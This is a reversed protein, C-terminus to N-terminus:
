ASESGVVEPPGEIPGVGIPPLPCDLSDAIARLLEAEEVTVKGDAAVCTLAAGIVKKKISPSSESLKNLAQAVVLLSCESKPLLNVEQGTKTLEGMAQDFAATTEGLDTHGIHALSSILGVIEKAVGNLSHYKVSPAKKDLIHRDLHDLLIRQLIFEFLSIRGDAKVLLDVTEHFHEYQEQSLGILTSQVMEIIPLRSERGQQRILPELKITDKETPEGEHQRILQLQKGRIEGEPKLILAFVVARADFVDHIADKLQQPMSDLLDHSYNVHSTTPEGVAGLIIVPELPIPMAEGMPTQGMPTGFRPRPKKKEAAQAAAAQTETYPQTRPFNGDFQPDIREVREQLPPHTAFLSFMSTRFASGFFMHSATEAEPTVMRSGEVLGGIKKLAGGIGDPNRTFQVASADALYERQRSVAAKILRGFFLGIYGIILAAIGLVFLFAAPNGKGGRRSRGGGAYAAFRLMYYGIVAILLIGHLIGILRVNLRMDGHLIHSFEHAIVGQLEDRSLYNITGRNVGIVADTPSYGAAFANISMENDMVYVPPVPVGSAIAMEEVVNLLRREGADMTNPNIRRGGLMSAIKQGGGRMEVVKYLSGLGIISGVVLAVILLIEPRFWVFERPRTHGESAVDEIIPTIGIAVLYLAAIMMIVAMIFYFVLLGSKRRAADQHGFFDM